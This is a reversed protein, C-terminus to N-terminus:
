PTLLLETNSSHKLYQVIIFEDAFRKVVPKSPQTENAIIDARSDTTIIVCLM